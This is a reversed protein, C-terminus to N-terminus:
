CHGAGSAVSILPLFGSNAQWSSIREFTNAVTIIGVQEAIPDGQFTTGGAPNMVQM